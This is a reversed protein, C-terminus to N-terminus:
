LLDAKGYQLKQETLFFFDQNEIHQKALVPSVTTLSVGELLLFIMETLFALSFLSIIVSVPLKSTVLAWAAQPSGPQAHPFSVPLTALERLILLCLSAKM